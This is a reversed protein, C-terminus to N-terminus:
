RFCKVSSLIIDEPGALESAMSLGEPLSAAYSANKAKVAQMREGVLFIHRCKMGYKEVFGQVDEPPLGECVQAAEEGLVLFIGGRKEDKKKLLAYELAKEASRIDMGSNSNDILPIGALEKEQMRGALGRFGELGAVVSEIGAGLELAAASAAVFATRYASISYGPRLSASFIEQGRRLFRLRAGSAASPGPSASSETENETELVFDAPEPEKGAPSSLFPDRFTLVNAPSEKAAELAKKAGANLLLTSGTKANRVLQLKAESALSTSNAIGYDPALTTLIGLDATGTGGISIEFIFFDPMCGAAFAMDVASLISGPTISLGRRILSSAGEDLAELGRSTHLVVAYKRSLMDALLSATSTKAKVGTVEVTRIGALRPDGKLIEGVIGHHSLIKKGLARAEALMPSAPDLHVPAVILDFGGAPLPTKSCHVGHKEELELLMEPAVTGYVDVGFVENGLGSLKKAIPIGGHTLDLVAIKKRYM